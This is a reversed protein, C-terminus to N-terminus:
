NIGPVVVLQGALALWVGTAGAAILTVGVEAVRASGRLVLQLISIVLTAAALILSGDPIGSLFFSALFAGGVVVQLIALVVAGHGRVRNIGDIIALSGGGIGILLFSSLAIV